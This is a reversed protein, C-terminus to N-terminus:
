PIPLIDSHHGNLWSMIDPWPHEVLFKWEDLTYVLTDIPIEREIELLEKGVAMRNKKKEQYTSGTGHKNLVVILDIDSDRHPVGYAYSGFLIVRDPNIQKLREVILSIYPSSYATNDM